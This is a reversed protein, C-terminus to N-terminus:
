ALHGCSKKKSDICDSCRNARGALWYGWLAILVGFVVIGDAGSTEKGIAWRIVAVASIAIGIVSIAVAVAM